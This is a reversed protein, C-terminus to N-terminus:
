QSGSGGTNNGVFDSVLGFLDVAGQTFEIEEGEALMEMDGGPEINVYLGGLLGNATITATSDAPIEVSGDIILTARAFFTDRDLEIRRVTGIPVGSVRVDAGRALDGVSDFRATVAYGDSGPGQEIRGQAYVLFFAAGALVIAGIVTEVLAGANM